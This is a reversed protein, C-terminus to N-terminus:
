GGVEVCRTIKRIRALPHLELFAVRVEDDTQGDDKYDVAHVARMPPIEWEVRIFKVPEHHVRLPKM